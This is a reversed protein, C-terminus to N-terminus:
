RGSENAARSEGTEPRTAPGDLGGVYVESEPHHAVWDRWTTLVPSLPTYPIVASKRGPGASERAGRAYAVAVPDHSAELRDAAVRKGTDHFYPVGAAKLVMEGDLLGAVALDLPGSGASGSYARVCHNLNCYAVSTPIGGILDNVLHGSRGEMAGLRYARAKGGVVVGIVKEDPSLRADRAAVVRPQVIPASLIDRWVVKRPAGVGAADPARRAEPPWFALLMLFATPLVAVIAWGIRVGRRGRSDLDEVPGGERKGIRLSAPCGPRDTGIRAIM